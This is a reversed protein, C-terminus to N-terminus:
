IKIELVTTAWVTFHRDVIHSVWTRDRSPFIQQLLFHCDVRTSNGPFDRSCPLRTPELGLPRLSDSVVSCSWKVEGYRSSYLLITYCSTCLPQCQTFLFLQQSHSPSSILSPLTSGYEICYQIYLLTCLSLWKYLISAHWQVHPVHILKPSQAHLCM